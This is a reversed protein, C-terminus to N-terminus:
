DAGVVIAGQTEARLRRLQARLQRGARGSAGAPAVAALVADVQEGVEELADHSTEPPPCILVALDYATRLKAIAHRFSELKLLAMPEPAERGAVICVLPEAALRSAPGALVLPQLIQPATAEWRLYEHLGPAPALGVQAALLPRALDCEVLVTRRGGARAAAALALAAALRQDGSVAVARHGDLGNALKTLAELDARRLSWARAAGSVPGGIEALVPLKARGGLM